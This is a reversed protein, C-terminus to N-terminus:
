RRHHRITDKNLYFKSPNSQKVNNNQSIVTYFVIMILMAGLFLTLAQIILPYFSSASKTTGLNKIEEDIEAESRNPDSSILERRSSDSSLYNFYKAEDWLNFLGSIISIFLFVWGIVLLTMSTSTITKNSLIISGTLPLIIFGVALLQKSIEFLRENALQNWYLAAKQYNNKNNRRRLKEDNNNNETEM